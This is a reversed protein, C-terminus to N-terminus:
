VVSKRDTQHLMDKIGHLSIAGLFRDSDGVVYLWDRQSQLFKEVVTTFPANRPVAEIEDHMIESVHITQMIGAELGRPLTVGARALAEDELSRGRIGRATFHSVICVFMLPLVIQYSNTQEFIMMIATLPGHTTGAVIAGM